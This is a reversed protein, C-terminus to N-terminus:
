PATYAWAGTSHGTQDTTSLVVRFAHTSLFTSPASPSAMAEGRLTETSNFARSYLYLCVKGAPATPADYSGTCSSDGDNAYASLKSNVDASTLPTPAVGPLQVTTSGGSPSGSQHFVDFVGAVTTGSPIVDGTTGGRAGPAGDAGRDGKPGAEGKAGVDGKPGTAGPSGAPGQRGAPGQLLTGKALDKATLSGNKVDAGTLSSNKVQKSSSVVYKQAAFATGGLALFLAVAALLSAPSPPRLRAVTTAKRLNEAARNQATRPGPGGNPLM